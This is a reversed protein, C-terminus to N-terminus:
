RNVVTNSAELDDQQQRLVRWRRYQESKSPDPDEYGTLWFAFWDVNGQQSAYRALPRQLNHTAIPIHFMEVPRHHRKLTTYMDWYPNLYVGYSEIRLPTRVRHANLNPAKELWLHRDEGWFPAGIAGETGFMGPASRGFQQMYTTLGISTSDAITAAAFTIESFTMAYSVHMGTRSFGILGVRLPDITGLEDLARVAGEYAAVFSPGEEQGGNPFPNSSPRIPMQLVIIGASALPRAAFASTITSAGDLLFQDPSYGYTQIVLPYRRSQTYNPPYLLGGQWTRGNSDTWEFPQVRGLIKERLTPNFDTIRKTHGSQFDTAALDPPTDADQEIFVALTSLTQAAAENDDLLWQGSPSRRYLKSILEDNDPVSYQVVLADDSPRHTEVFHRGANTEYSEIASFQGTDVNIEVVSTTNSLLDLSDAPAGRLPLYTDSVIVSESDTSWHVTKRSYAIPAPLLPQIDGTRTDLLVYQFVRRRQTAIAPNGAYKKEVSGLRRYTAYQAIWEAPIGEAYAVSVVWRGNPSVWLGFASFLSHGPSTLETVKGTSLELSFYAEDHRWTKSPDRLLSHYLSRSEVAYGRFDSDSRDIGDDEAVYVLTSLDASVDFRRIHSDHDTLQTLTRTAIDVSYVQGHSDGRHGVFALSSDTLWRLSSIGPPRRSSTKLPRSELSVVPVGLGYDRKENARLFDRVEQVNFVLIEHSLTDRALNGTQTVIAFHSRTPSFKVSRDAFRELRPSPDVLRKMAISDGVTIVGPSQDVQASAGTSAVLALSCGFVWRAAVRIISKRAGPTEIRPKTARPIKRELKSVPADFRSLRAGSIPDIM